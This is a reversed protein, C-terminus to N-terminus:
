AGVGAPGVLDALVYMGRQQAASRCCTGNLMSTLGELPLEPPPRISDYHTLGTRADPMLERAIRTLLNDSVRDTLERRSRCSRQSLNRSARGCEGHGDGNARCGSAVTSITSSGACSTARGTRSRVCVRQERRQARVLSQRFQRNRGDDVVMTKQHLMTRNFEQIDIGAALLRGFLRVSNHHGLWNDNCRGSVMIRVVVCRQKAEILTQIAVPDPVLYPNAILISERACVISLYYM